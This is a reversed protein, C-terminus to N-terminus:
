RLALDSRLTLTLDDEPNISILEAEDEGGILWGTLAGLGAGGLIEEIDISGDGTVAALVTAAAAGIAAGQLISSVDTGEEITETRTIIRSSANIPLDRKQGRYNVVISEAVFRQGEKSNTEAPQIKGKIESGEPILIDRNRNRINVAVKLTIPTTEDKTVLIKEKGYKVPIQTGSPVIRGGFQALTTTPKPLSLSKAEVSSLSFLPVISTTGLLLAAFIVGKSNRCTRSSM